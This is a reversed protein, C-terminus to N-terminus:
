RYVVLSPVISIFKFTSGGEVGGVHSGIVYLDSGNLFSPGELELGYSRKNPM